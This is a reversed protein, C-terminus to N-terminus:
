AAFAASQHGIFFLRIGAEKALKQIIV